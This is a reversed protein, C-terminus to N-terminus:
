ARAAEIKVSDLMKRIAPQNSDLFSAPPGHFTFQGSELFWIQDATRCCSAVDHSVLVTTTQSERSIKAILGDILETSLPDLGTTPEDYLMIQPELVIARAMGVRKRMGGSLEAPLKKGDEEPDLGVLELAHYVTENVRHRQEASGKRQIAFSVNQIVSMSDFLASTQFVMGMRHRVEPLDDPLQYGGIEIQGANAIQLGSLCRLLTSKGGGSLGMIACVEGEAVDFDLQDLIPGQGFDVTLGRVSIM